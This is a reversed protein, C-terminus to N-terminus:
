HETLIRLINKAIVGASLNSNYFSCVAERDTVSHFSENLAAILADTNGPQFLIGIDGGNIMKTFAPIATLIPYAGCSLAETVAVGSGERYSTSVIFDAASYWAALEVHDIRGILKIKEMAGAAAIAKQIQSLLDDVQFIMILTVHEHKKQFEIFAKVMLLPNKNADLRGVWLYIKEGQLNLKRKADRTPLPNFPSTVEMVEHVKSLNGIMKREFWGEAIHNSTFFYGDVSADVLKQLWVKLPNRFPSEGHHQIFIKCRSKYRKLLTLTEYPRVLGHVIIVDPKLEFIRANILVHTNIFLPRLFHYTVAGGKVTGEYDIANISHVEMHQALASLIPTFFDVRSFWERVSSFGRMPFYSVYVIRM